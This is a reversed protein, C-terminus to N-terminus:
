EITIQQNTFGYQNQIRIFYIGQELKIKKSDWHKARKEFVIEGKLNRIQVGIIESKEFVLHVSKQDTETSFKPALETNEGITQQLAQTIKEWGNKNGRLLKGQEIHIFKGSAQKALNTCPHPSGNMLNGQVNSLGNLRNWTTDRHAIKFTLESDIESLHFFFISVYDLDKPYSKTGNSLIADPDNKKKEFGHLQFVLLDTKQVNFFEHFIHFLSHSNHALDSIRFNEETEDNCVMTKGSCRSYNTSNCREAGAVAYMGAQVNKFIFIGEKETFRDHHPHPCSILLNKRSAKPNFVYTGWHNSSNVQKQLIWYLKQDTSDEFINLFYGIENLYEETKEQNQDYVNELAKQWIELTEKSPSQYDGQNAVKPMSHTLSDIYETLNGKMKQSFVFQSCCLFILLLFFNM